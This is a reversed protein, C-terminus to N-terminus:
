NKDSGQEFDGKGAELGKCTDVKEELGEWVVGNLIVFGVGLMGDWKRCGDSCLMM